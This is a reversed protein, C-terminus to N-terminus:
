RAYRCQPHDVVALYELLSLVEAATYLDAVQKAVQMQALAVEM